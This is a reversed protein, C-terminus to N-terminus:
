FSMNTHVHICIICWDNTHGAEEPGPIGPVYRPKLAPIQGVIHGRLATPTHLKKIERRFLGRSFSNTQLAGLYGGIYISIYVLLLAVKRNQQDIRM